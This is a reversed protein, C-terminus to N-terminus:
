AAQGDQAKSTAAPKEFEVAFGTETHRAVSGRMAGVSVKSGLTPRVETRLQCGGKSMEVITCPTHCAGDEIVATTEINYRIRLSSRRETLKLYIEGSLVAAIRERICERQAASLSFVVGVGGSFRRVVRGALRGLGVPYVIIEDGEAADTEALLALGSESIDLLTGVSETENRLLFKVDVSLAFRKAARREDNTTSM